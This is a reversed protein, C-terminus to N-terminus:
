LNKPLPKWAQVKGFRKVRILDAEDLRFWEGHVRKAAFRRHLLTELRATAKWDCCKAHMLHVVEGPGFERRLPVLRRRLCGTHGIKVLGDSDRRFFYVRHDPDTLTKM